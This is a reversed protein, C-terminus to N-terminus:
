RNFSTVPQLDASLPNTSGHTNAANWPNTSITAAALLGRRIVFILMNAWSSFGQVGSGQIKYNILRNYNTVLCNYITLGKGCAHLVLTYKRCSREKYKGVKWYVPGSSIM